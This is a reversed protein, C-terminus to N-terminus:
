APGAGRAARTTNIAPASRHGGAIQRAGILRAHQVVGMVHHAGPRMQRDRAAGRQLTAQDGRLRV